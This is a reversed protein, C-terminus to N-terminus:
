AIKRDFYFNVLTQYNTFLQERDIPLNESNSTVLECGNADVTVGEPTNPCKDNDDVVGDGDTDAPATPETPTPPPTPTTPTTEPKQVTCGNADVSDGAPTDPCNDDSNTIGDGDDDKDGQAVEKKISATNATGWNPFQVWERPQHPGLAIDRAVSYKINVENYSKMYWGNRVYNEDLRDYGYWLSTTYQPSYAVVWNDRNDHTSYNPLGVAAMRNHDWNSTGTKLAFNIGYGDIEDFYGTKTSILMQNIADATTTKMVRSTEPTLDIEEANPSEYDLVVKSVTSPATFIGGRAFASYGGAISVTSEGTYGGISHAEFFDGNAPDIELNLGMSKAMAITAQPDNRQFVKLAPINRSESLATSLTITGMFRSDWNKIPTGNSYQYKEDAITENISICNGQEFCPAYDLLPKATSGPQQLSTAYNLGVEDTARGSLLATVTGNSNNIITSAVLVKDNYYYDKNKVSFMHAQAGPDMNTYIEVSEKYANIGTKEKVENIAANIYDTYEVKTSNFNTTPKLYSALPIAKTTEAQEKTIYGHRVMLDLVTNRRVEAQASGQITPDYTYPAQFLGALFSAEALNLDAPEKQFYNNSAAALGYSFNGLYLSNAYFTIIEEKTYTKEILNTAVYLDQIKREVKVKFPEKVNEKRTFQNKSVQMTLTSGGGAQGLQLTAKLLRPRDVGDHAFFRSDEIALLAEVFVEPIEDYELSRRPAGVTGMLGGDKDYVVSQEKLTLTGSEAKSLNDIVQSAFITGTVGLVIAGVLSIIITVKFFTLIGRAIRKAISVKKKPKNQNEINKKNKKKFM